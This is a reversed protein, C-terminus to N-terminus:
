GEFLKNLVTILAWAFLGTVAGLAVIEPAVAVLGGIGSAVIVGAVATTIDVKKMKM